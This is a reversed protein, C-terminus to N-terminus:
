KTELYIKLIIAYNALDLLTDTIAEDKVKAETNLITAIRSLKDTIRVLIWFETSIKDDTLFSITEFNKFRLSNWSYDRNKAKTIELMQSTIEEFREIYEVPTLTNM